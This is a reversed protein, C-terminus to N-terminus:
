IEVSVTYEQHMCPFDLLGVGNLTVTACQM